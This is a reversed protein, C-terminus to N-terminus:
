VAFRIKFVIPQLNEIIIGCSSFIEAFLSSSFIDSVKNKIVIEIRIEYAAANEMFCLSIIIGIIKDTEAADNQMTKSLAGGNVKTQREAKYTSPTNKLFSEPLATLM